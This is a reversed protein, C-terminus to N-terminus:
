MQSSYDFHFTFAAQSNQFVQFGAPDALFAGKDLDGPRPAPLKQGTLAQVSPKQAAQSDPDAPSASQPEDEFYRQKQCAEGQCQSAQIGVYMMLHSFPADAQLFDM